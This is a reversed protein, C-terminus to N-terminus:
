INDISQKDTPIKETKRRIIIYFTHRKLMMSSRNFTAAHPNHEHISGGSM